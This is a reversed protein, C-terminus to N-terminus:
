ELKLYRLIRSMCVEDSVRSLIFQRPMYTHWKDVMIKLVSELEEASSAREGCESSWETASTAKLQKLGKYKEYVCAGKCDYEEFMTQVDWVLIPVNGVLCDQFAFGQSEHTGIWICFKVSKLLQVYEDHKYSGYKIVQHRLGHKKLLSLVTEVDNPRRGKCYVLCDMTKPNDRFDPSSASLGFPLPAFPIVTQSAFERNVTMVWDSLCTYVARKCWEENQPGVIPGEVFVFHQPGYLLKARSPIMDPSVWKTPLWLIDYDARKLRNVDSTCEYQIAKVKCMREM